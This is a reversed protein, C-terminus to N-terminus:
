FLFGQGKAPCPGTEGRRRPRRESFMKLLVYPKPQTLGIWTNSQPLQGVRNYETSRSSVDLSKARAFSLFHQLTTMSKKLSRTTAQM